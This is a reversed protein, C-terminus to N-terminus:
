QLEARVALARELTTAAGPQDPDVALSRQLLDIARDLDDTSADEALYEAALANLLDPRDSRQLVAREYFRIADYHEGQRALTDALRELLDIDNPTSVLRRRLVDELDDVRGLDDLLELQLGQAVDDDPVRRLVQEVTELADAPRGAARLVTARAM